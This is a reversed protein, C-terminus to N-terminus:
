YNVSAINNQPNLLYQLHTSNLWFRIKDALKLGRKFMIAASLAVVVATGGDGGNAGDARALGDADRDVNVNELRVDQRGIQGVGDPVVQPEPVILVSTLRM